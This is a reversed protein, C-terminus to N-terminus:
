ALHRVQHVRADAPPDPLDVAPRDGLEVRGLRRDHRQDGVADQGLLQRPAQHQDADEERQGDLEHSQLRQGDGHAHVERDRGRRRHERASHDAPQHLPPRAAGLPRDGLDLRPRADQERAPEDGAARQGADRDGAHRRRQHAPGVRRLNRRGVVQCVHGAQLRREAGDVPDSRTASAAKASGPPPARGPRPASVPHGRGIGDRGVIRARMM